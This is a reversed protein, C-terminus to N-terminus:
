FIRNNWNTIVWNLIIISTGVIGLLTILGLLSVTWTLWDLYLGVVSIIPALIKFIDKVKM